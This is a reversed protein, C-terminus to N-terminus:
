IGHQEAQRGLSSWIADLGAGVRDPDEHYIPMVIATRAHLPRGAVEAPDLGAPDRGVLQIVFGAIATWFSGAIWAFLGFFLALGLLEIGTLGNAELVDLLLAGAGVASLLTLGFFFTRRVRVRVAYRPRRVSLTDM